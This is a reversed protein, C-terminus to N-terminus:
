PGQEVSNSGCSPLSWFRWRPVTNPSTPLLKLSAISHQAAVMGTQPFISDASECAWQSGSEGTTLTHTWACKRAYGLVITPVSNISEGLRLANLLTLSFGKRTNVSLLDARKCMATREEAKSQKHAKAPDRCNKKGAEYGPVRCSFEAWKKKAFERSLCALSQSSASPLPFLEIKKKGNWCGSSLPPIAFMCSLWFANKVRLSTKYLTVRRNAASNSTITASPHM